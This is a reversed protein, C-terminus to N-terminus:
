FLLGALAIALEVLLSISLFLIVMFLFFGLPFIWWYTAGEAERRDIHRFLLHLGLVLGADVAAALVWFAVMKVTMYAAYDM